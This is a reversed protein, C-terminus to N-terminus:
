SVYIEVRRNAARGEKTANAKIPKSNGKGISEVFGAVEGTLFQKVVNARQNSLELNTSTNGSADAYGYVQVTPFGEGRILVMFASLKQIAEPSLQSSNDEFNITAALIYKSNIYRIKLPKSETGDNGVSSVSISSSPGYIANVTCTTIKSLCITSGNRMVRYNSVGTVKRWSVKTQSGNVPAYSGTAVPAPLVTLSVMREVAINKTKVVITFLAIGSFGAQPNVQILRKGLKINSIGNIVPASGKPWALSASKPIDQLYFATPVPKSITKTVMADSIEDVNGDQPLIVVPM